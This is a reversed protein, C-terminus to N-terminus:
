LTDTDFEPYHTNMMKKLEEQREYLDSRRDELHAIKRDIEYYEGKAESFEQQLENLSPVDFDNGHVDGPDERVAPEMVNEYLQRIALRDKNQM